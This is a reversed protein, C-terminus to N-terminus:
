LKNLVMQMQITKGCLEQLSYTCMPTEINASCEILYLSKSSVKWIVKTTSKTKHVDLIVVLCMCYLVM